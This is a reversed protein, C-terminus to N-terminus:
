NERNTEGLKILYDIKFDFMEILKKKSKSIKEKVNEFDIEICKKLEDITLSNFTVEQNFPNFIKCKLEAQGKHYVNDFKSPILIHGDRNILFIKEEIKKEKPLPSILSLYKYKEELKKRGQLYKKSDKNLQKLRKIIQKM